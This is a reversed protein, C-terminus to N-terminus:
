VTFYDHGYEIFLESGASIAENATVCVVQYSSVSSESILEQVPSSFSVNATRSPRDTGEAPDVFTPDNIKSAACYEFPVIFIPRSSTSPLLCTINPDKIQVAYKQFREISFSTPGTGFTKLKAQYLDKYVVAGFYYGVIDGPDIDVRAFLGDGAAPITSTAVYVNHAMADISLLTKSDMTSLLGLLSQPWKHIPLDILDNHQDPICWIATLFSILHPPLQTSSPLSSPNKSHSDDDSTGLQSTALQQLAPTSQQAFNGISVQQLFALNVRPLSLEFCDTFKECGVFRRYQGHHMTLCAVATSFTGAFMDVVLDGQNSFRGILEQMLAVTKQEPRLTVKKKDKDLYKVTESATIRPINDIVNTWAKFRSPIYGANRYNVMGWGEKGKGLKTAHVVLEVMNLLSTTIRYPPSTFHTPSRTCVIPQSDVAFMPSGTSYKVKRLEYVWNYFLAASTFILVHGGKRTVKSIEAVTDEIEEQRLVDYGSNGRGSMRRTNYPPDTLVLQAGERIQPKRPNDVADYNKLLDRFSCNFTHLVSGKMNDMEPPILVEDEARMSKIDARAAEATGSNGSNRSSSGAGSPSEDLRRRKANPSTGNGGPPSDRVPSATRETDGFLEENPDPTSQPEETLSFATLQREVMGLARITTFRGADPSGTSAQFGQLFPIARPSSVTQDFLEKHRCITMIHEWFSTACLRMQADQLLTRHVAASSISASHQVRRVAGRGHLLTKLERLPAFGRNESDLVHYTFVRQDYLLYPQLLEETNTAGLSKALVDWSKLIVHIGYGLRQATWPSDKKLLPTPRNSSRTRTRSRPRSEAQLKWDRDMQILAMLFVVREFTTTLRPTTWSDQHSAREQTQSVFFQCALSQRSFADRGIASQSFNHETYFEKQVPLPPGPSQSNKLPDEASQEDREHVFVPIFFSVSLDLLGCSTLFLDWVRTDIDESGDEGASITFNRVAQVINFTHRHYAYSFWKDLVISANAPLDFKYMSSVARRFATLSREALPVHDEKKEAEHWCDRMHAVIAVSEYFPIIRERELLHFLISALTHPKTTISEYSMRLLYRSTNRRPRSWVEECVDMGGVLTVDGNDAISGYLYLREFDLHVVSTVDSAPTSAGAIAPISVVRAPDVWLITGNGYKDSPHMPGDESYTEVLGHRPQPQAM